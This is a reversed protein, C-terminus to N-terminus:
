PPTGTATAAAPGAKMLRGLEALTLYERSRLEDNPPRVPVSRNEHRPRVLWLQASM